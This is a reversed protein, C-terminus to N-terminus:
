IFLETGEESTLVEQNILVVKHDFVEHDFSTKTFLQDSMKNVCFYSLGSNNFMDTIRHGTYSTQQTRTPLLEM